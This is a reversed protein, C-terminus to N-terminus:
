QNLRQSKLQHDSVISNSQQDKLIVPVPTMNDEKSNKSDDSYVAAKNVQVPKDEPSMQHDQDPKRQPSNAPKTM